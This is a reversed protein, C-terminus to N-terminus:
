FNLLSTISVSVRSSSIEGLLHVCNIVFSECTLAKENEQLQKRNAATCLTEIQILIYM